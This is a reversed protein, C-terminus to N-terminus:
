KLLNETHLSYNPTKINPAQYEPGGEVIFTEAQRELNMKM